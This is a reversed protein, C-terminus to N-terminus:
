QCHFYWNGYMSYVAANYANDETDVFLAQEALVPVGKIDFPRPDFTYISEQMPEDEKRLYVV